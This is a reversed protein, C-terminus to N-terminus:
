RREYAVPGGLKYRQSRLEGDCEPTAPQELRDRHNITNQQCTREPKLSLLNPCHLLCDSSQCGASRSPAGIRIVRISLRSAAPRLVKPARGGSSALRSAFCASECWTDVAFAIAKA